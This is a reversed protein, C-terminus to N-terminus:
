RRTHPFSEWALVLPKDYTPDGGRTRSLSKRAVKPHDKKLFVGAHAPFVKLLGYVSNIVM